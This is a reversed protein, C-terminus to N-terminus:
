RVLEASRTDADFGVGRRARLNSAEDSAGYNLLWTNRGDHTDPLQRILGEAFRVRDLGSQTEAANLKITTM